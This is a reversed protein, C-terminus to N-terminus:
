SVSIARVPCSEAAQRACDSNNESIVESKGEDNMRFSDPCIAACAGCGICADIDIKIKM